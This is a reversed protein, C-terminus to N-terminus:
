EHLSYLIVNIGIRTADERTYGRCELANHKELACSLDYPSFIVGYRDGFKIGKLYPPDQREVVSLAGTEASRKPIRHTVRSLDYGSYTKKFLAHEVPIDEMARDPFVARMERVFSEAFAENACVADAFLVGGREVYTRLQRREPETFRFANRGHMFALHYTFLSKDTISLKHQRTSVPTKLLRAVEQLLNVLARPAVDCGGLHELKAVRLRGRTGPDDEPTGELELPVDLKFKLQRGTAYTLVNIGISVAADIQAQVAPSYKEGRGTRSLEWLCSLSPRPADPPDPPSYVVSTRCGFDVGLLPRWQAPDVKEEAQWVPHGPPLPKLGYQSEKFMEAILKRFGADFDGDPCSAEAFLFGGRDLYDRLKAALEKQAEAGPPLPSDKGTLFLVPAQLLDPVSARQVEIVQWTLDRHWKSEVYRTLNAVDSRHRNWNDGSGHSLKAILLPRRGKSLFLLAFSTSVLPNDESLGVGKWYKGLPDQVIILKEAVERYWDHLEPPQNVVGPRVFFRRATMRGVREIGYLYYMVWHQQMQLPGPNSRSRFNRGLWALGRDLPTEEESREGSCCVIRDGDVQADSPDVKNSAIVWSAIGACTMSGTGPWKEYYGWSGDSHQCGEWYALASEWVRADVEIRVDQGLSESLSQGIREAEHLALLAFQTNSNDGKGSPYGWSGKRRGDRNDQIQNGQLWRANRRILPLYRAATSNAAGASERAAACFVMTQLAVVYTKEPRLTHLYALARRVDPDSPPVGCNLLALTCLSTVGGPYKGSGDEPWKGGALQQLRLYGVGGDISERVAQANLETEARINRGFAGFGVTLLAVLAIWRNM